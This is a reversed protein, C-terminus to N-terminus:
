RIRLIGDFTIILKDLFFGHEIWDGFFFFFSEKSLAVTGM